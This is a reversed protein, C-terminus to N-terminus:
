AGPIPNPLEWTQGRQLGGERQGPPISRDSVSPVQLKQEEWRYEHELSACSDNRNCRSM